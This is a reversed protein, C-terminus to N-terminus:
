TLCANRSWRAALINRVNEIFDLYADSSEEDPSEYSEDLRSSLDAYRPTRVQSDDM